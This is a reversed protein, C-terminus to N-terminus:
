PSGGIPPLETHCRICTIGDAARKHGMPSLCQPIESVDSPATWEIYSLDPQRQQPIGHGRARGDALALDAIAGAATTTMLLQPRDDVRDTNILAFVVYGDGRFGPQQGRPPTAALVYGVEALVRRGTYRSCATEDHHNRHCECKRAPDWERLNVMDGRQFGRDDFRVEFPKEGDWIPRFYTPWTKLEHVIM